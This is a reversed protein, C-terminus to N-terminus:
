SGSEDVIIRTSGGEVLLVRRRPAGCSDGYDRGQTKASPLGRDWTTSLIVASPAGDDPDKYILGNGIVRLPIVKKAAENSIRMIFTPNTSKVDRTGDALGKSVVFPALFFLVSAFTLMGRSALAEYIITRKLLAWQLVIFVPMLLITVSYLLDSIPESILTLM